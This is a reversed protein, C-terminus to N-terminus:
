TVHRLTALVVLNFYCMSPLEKQFAAWRQIECRVLASLYCNYSIENVEQLFGYFQVQTNKLIYFRFGAPFAMYIQYKRWFDLFAVMFILKKFM